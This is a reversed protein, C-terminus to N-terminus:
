LQLTAYLIQSSKSLLMGGAAIADAGMAGVSACGGPIQM